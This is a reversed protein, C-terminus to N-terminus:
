AARRLPPEASAALPAALQRLNDYGRAPDLVDIRTLVRQAARLVDAFSLNQKHTYWPRIPPAAISTSWVGDCFWLVLLVYIYAVFPAVREVAARKRASSDAFGLHQKLDKFCVELSWRGSYTMLVDEALRESDTCFFVRMGITGHEVHVIVIRGLRDGAGRYWQAQVSKYSIVSPKGYLALKALHWPYSPDNYIQEPKPLAAGRKHRRGTHKREADTPAATLVADPRLAGIVTVRKSLGRTLTDNCYASDAVVDVDRGTAWGALIDVMQRGLETKKRYRHGSRECERRTRYLRLLVPLAWRRSSFPVSVVVALVVWVHGFCFVRYGKTSRVPDLHSGLGFVEPGKKPALTDDLAVVLRGHPCLTAVIREFLLRGVTDPKWSGRSFFRHFREHHVRRAVDTVVLAQTVAHTGMTLVWGAFVVWANRTGPRTFAVSVAEMSGIMTALSRTFAEDHSRM